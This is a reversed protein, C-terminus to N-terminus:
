LKIKEIRGMFIFLDIKSFKLYVVLGKDNQKKQSDKVKNLLLIGEDQLVM